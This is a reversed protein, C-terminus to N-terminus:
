SLKQRQSFYIGGVVCIGIVIIFTPSTLNGLDDLISDGAHKFWKGTDEVANKTWHGFDKFGKGIPKTIKHTTKKIAKFLNFGM